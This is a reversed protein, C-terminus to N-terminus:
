LAEHCKRCITNLLEEMKEGVRSSEAMKTDIVLIALDLNAGQLINQRVRYAERMMRRWRNRDVAHHFNKKRAVVMLKVGENDNRPRYVARFPFCTVRKGEAYLLEINKESCLHRSKDFGYLRM